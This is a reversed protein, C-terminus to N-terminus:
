AEDYLGKLDDIAEEETGGWGRPGDEGNGEYFACWDFSREPIPPYVHITVIKM